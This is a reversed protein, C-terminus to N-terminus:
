RNIIKVVDFFLLATFGQFIPVNRPNEARKLYDPHRSDFGGVIPSYVGMKRPKQNKTGFKMGFKM